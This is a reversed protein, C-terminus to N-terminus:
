LFKFIKLLFLAKKIFYLANKMINLLRDNLSFIFIQYFIASVLKLTTKWNEPFFIPGNLDLFQLNQM